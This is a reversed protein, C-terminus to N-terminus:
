IISWGKLHNFTTSMQGQLNTLFKMNPFQVEGITRYVRKSAEILDRGHAVATYVAESEGSMLYSEGDKYVGHFFIHDLNGQEIGLIPAGRMDAETNAVEIGVLYDHSVVIDTNSGFALMNLFDSLPLDKLGEVMAFVCPATFGLYVNKIYVDSENAILSVTVPGKYDFMKLAKKLPEITKETLRNSSKQSLMAIAGINSSEPTSYFFPKLWNLGNFWGVISVDQGIVEEQLLIKESVPLQYMAWALWEPKTCVFVRRGVKIYYRNTNGDLLKPHLGISETYIESKAYKSGLRSFLEYEKVSDGNIQDAFENCGIIPKNYTSARKYITPWNGSDSVIFKCEQVSKWLNDTISYIAGGTAQLALTDSYVEVDHGELSLRQAIGLAIGTRTLVLIKM